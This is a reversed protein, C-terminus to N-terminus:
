HNRIKRQAPRLWWSLLTFLVFILPFIVSSYDKVAIHSVTAGTFLFFAGAYAWEKLLKLRPLLIAAAGLIKASGLIFALYEPYGLRSLVHQIVGKNLINFDWLAGDILEFALLATIIWFVISKTKSPKNM